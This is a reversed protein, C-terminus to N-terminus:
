EGEASAAGLPSRMVSYRRWGEGKLPVPHPTPVEFTQLPQRRRRRAQEFLTECLGM